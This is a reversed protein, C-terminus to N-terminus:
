FDRGLYGDITGYLRAAGSEPPYVRAPEAWRNLPSSVAPPLDRYPVTRASGDALLVVANFRANWPQSGLIGHLRSDLLHMPFNQFFAVKRSPYRVWAANPAVLQSEDLLPAAPSWLRALTFMAHNQQFSSPYSRAPHMAEVRQPGWPDFMGADNPEPSFYDDLAVTWFGMQGGYDRWYLGEYIADNYQRMKGAQPLGGKHDACHSEVAVGIGHLRSLLLAERSREVARAISPASIAILVALAAIVVLTEVLTFGPPLPRDGLRPAPAYPPKRPSDPMTDDRPM